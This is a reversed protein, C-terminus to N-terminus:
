RHACLAEALWKFAPVASPGPTHGNLLSLLEWYREVKPEAVLELWALLDANEKGSLDMPVIRDLVTKGAPSEPAIGKTVASGAHELVTPRINLGFEIRNDTAGSLVMNRLTNRFDQDAVLEALEMWADVQEPTPDDPLEPPMERMFEAIILADEDDVGTFTQDVFDNIIQQREQASLQALKHLVTIEETTSDRKTVTRLVARRLRLSRIEVDLARVHTEAIDALTAQQELVQRVADLGLGLERLTKVLDLRTVAEADYLRYGTASRDIPPVVGIDSWFRITRTPMGTRRALQGITYRNKDYGM